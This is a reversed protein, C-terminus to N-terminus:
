ESSKERLLMDWHYIYGSEGGEKTYVFDEIFWDTNISDDEFGSLSISKGLRMFELIYNINEETDTKYWTGSMNLTEVQKGIDITESTGDLFTYTELKRSNRNTLRDPKTLTLTKNYNFRVNLKINHYAQTDGVLTPYLAGTKGDEDTAQSPYISFAFWDSGGSLFTGFDSIATSNLEAVKYTGNEPFPSTTYYTSGETAEDFLEKDSTSSSPRYGKMEHIYCDTSTSGSYILTLNQISATDPIDSIDWEIIGAFYYSDGPKNKRQMIISSTDSNYSTLGGASVYSVHGYMNSYEVIDLLYDVNTHNFTLTFTASM